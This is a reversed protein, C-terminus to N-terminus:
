QQKLYEIIETNQKKQIGAPLDVRNFTKMDVAIPNNQTESIIERLIQFRNNRYRPNIQPNIYLPEDFIPNITLDNTNYDFKPLIAQYTQNKSELLFMSHYLEGELIEFEAFPEINILQGEKATCVFSGLGEACGIMYNEWVELHRIVGVQADEVFRENLFTPQFSRSLANTKADFCYVKRAGRIGIVHSNNNYTIESLFYADDADDTLLKKELVINCDEGEYVVLKTPADNEDNQISIIKNLEKVWFANEEFIEIGSLCDPKKPPTATSVSPTASPTTTASSDIAISPVENNTTNNENSCNYLALLCFIFTLTLTHQKM